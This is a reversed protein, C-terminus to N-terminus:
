FFNFSLQRKSVDLHDTSTYRVKALAAKVYNGSAGKRCYGLQQVGGAMQQGVIATPQQHFAPIGVFLKGRKFIAVPNIGPRDHYGPQLALAVQDPYGELWGTLANHQAQCGADYQHKKRCISEYHRSIRRRHGPVGPCCKGASLLLAISRSRLTALIKAIVLWFPPTPFVVVVILRAADSAAVPRLTM